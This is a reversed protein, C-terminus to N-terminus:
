ESLQYEANQTDFDVRISPNTQFSLKHHISGALLGFKALHPEDM